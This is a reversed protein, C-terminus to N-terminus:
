KISDEPYSCDKKQLGCYIFCSNKFKRARLILGVCKCVSSLIYVIHESIEDGINLQLLETYGKIVQLQNLIEKDRLSLFPISEENHIGSTGDNGLPSHESPLNSKM